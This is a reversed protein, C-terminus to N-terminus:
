KKAVVIIEGGYGLRALLWLIPWFLYKGFNDYGYSLIKGYVFPHKRKVSNSVFGDGKTVLKIHEFGITKLYRFLIKPSYDYLHRPVDLGYWKDKFLFAPLCSVNPVAISIIGDKQLFDYTTKLTLMPDYVHELVHNFRIFGFYEKPFPADEIHGRFGHHGRSTIQKVMDDSIDIGYTEMGVNKMLDLFSGNGCGVDLVKSIYTKNPYGHIKNRLPFTLLWWLSKRFKGYDEKIYSHPYILKTYGYHSFLITSKLRDKKRNLTDKGNTDNLPSYICYTDPYYVGISAEVPRPNIFVLGCNCCKVITFTGKIGCLLDNANFLPKFFASGCLNCKIQEMNLDNIMM